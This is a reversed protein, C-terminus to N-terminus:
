WIVAAAPSAVPKIGRTDRGMRSSECVPKEWSDSPSTSPVRSATTTSNATGTIRRPTTDGNAIRSRILSTWNPIFRM